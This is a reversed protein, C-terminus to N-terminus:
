HRKRHQSIALEIAKRVRPDVDSPNPPKTEPPEPSVSRIVASMATTAFVLVGLFVFVTGIGLATLEGAGAILDDM